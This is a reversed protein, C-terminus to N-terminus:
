VKDTEGFIAMRPNSKGEQKSTSKSEKMELMEKRTEELEKSMKNILVDQRASAEQREDMEKVIADFRLQATHREERFEIQQQKMKSEQQALMQKMVAAFREKERQIAVETRHHLLEEM